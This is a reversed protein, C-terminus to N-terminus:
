ISWRCRALSVCAFRDNRGLRAIRNLTVIVHLAILVTLAHPTATATSMCAIHQFRPLWCESEPSAHLPTTVISRPSWHQGVAVLNAHSM